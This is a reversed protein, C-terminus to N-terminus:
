SVRYLGPGLTVAAQEPALEVEAEVILQGAYIGNTVRLFPGGDPAGPSPTIWEIWVHADADASSDAAFTTTNLAQGPQRPDYGSLTTGAKVTWTRPAPFPYVIERYSMEPEEPQAVYPVPVDFTAFRVQLGSLKEAYRQLTAARESRWDGCIPDGLLWSGGDNDPHVFVCHNGDFAGSCGSLFQDSDGQLIVGYGAARAAEVDVWPGHHIALPPAGPIRSAALAADGLSWGPTAPNTEEAPAVKALVQDGSLDIAGGTACRLANAVSTPTCGMSALRASGGYQWRHTGEYRGSM